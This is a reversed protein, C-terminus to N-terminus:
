CVSDVLRRSTVIKEMVWIMLTFRECVAIFILYV